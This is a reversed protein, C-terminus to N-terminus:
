IILNGRIEKIIGLLLASESKQPHLLVIIKSIGFSKVFIKM